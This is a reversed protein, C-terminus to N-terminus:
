KPQMDGQVFDKGATHCDACVAPAGVDYATVDAFDPSGGKTEYFFWTDKGAGTKHKGMIAYGDIVDSKYIETVSLSGVPHEDKKDELSTELEANFFVKIKGHPTGPRFTTDGRWEKYDESKLFSLIGVKSTDKIEGIAEPITTESDTEDTKKKFGMDEMTVVPCSDGKTDDAKSATKGVFVTKYSPNGDKANAFHFITKGDKESCHYLKFGDDTYTKFKPTLKSAVNPFRTTIQSESCCWKVLTGECVGSGGGKVAVWAQSKEECGIIGPGVDYSGGNGSPSSPKETDDKDSPTVPEQGCGSTTSTTGVGSEEDIEKEQGTEKEEDKEEDTEKEKDTEQAESEAQEDDEEEILNMRLCPNDEQPDSAVNEKESGSVGKREETKTCASLASVLIAATFINLRLVTIKKM